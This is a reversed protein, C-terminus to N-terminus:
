SGPGSVGHPDEAFYVRTGEAFETHEEILKPAVYPRRVKPTEQSTDSVRWNRTIAM